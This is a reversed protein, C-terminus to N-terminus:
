KMIEEQQKTGPRVPAPTGAAPTSDAPTVAIRGRNARTLYIEVRRNQPTNGNANNPVLPDFEGRGAIEIRQPDISDHTFENRVSIARDASLRLNTTHKQVNAPSLRQSDTHGVVRIDYGAAASNLIGALQALTSKAGERVKDSGSDFTVDSKFRILGRAADYELLDSHQRALDALASDTSPDLLSGFKMNKFREDIEGLQSAFQANQDRAANLALQLDSIAKDRATLAGQLQQVLNKLSENEQTLSTVRDTLARNAESLATNSSNCGGLTLGLVGILAAAFAARAARLRRPMPRFISLNSVITTM